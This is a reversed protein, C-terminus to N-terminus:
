ESEMLRRLQSVPIKFREIRRPGALTGAPDQCRIVVTPQEACRLVVYLWYDNGRQQAQAWEHQEFVVPKIGAAFGKVEILRQDTTGPRRALLDYGLGATQRDDVSWGLGELETVVKAIAVKESDPDHGLEDTRAGGSVQIWGMLTPATHSVDDFLDLQALRDARLAAFRDLAERRASPDLVRVQRKYRREIDGLDARTKATIARQQREMQAAEAAVADRAADDAEVRAAPVPAAPPTTARSLNMVSEWATPFAGAGSYRILFPVTRRVRRIGDHHELDATYVFLRYGTLSALDVAAAGALLDGECRRVAREVLELFPDETPGLVVVDAARRFQEEQAKAVAGADAAILCEEGGGFSSPLPGSDSRLIRIGPTPGTSVNWDEVQAAQDVFASVIVPNIAQLRDAALRQMAEAPDVPTKLRDEDAVIEQARAVLTETDPVAAIVAGVASPDRYTAAMAAGFNFGARDVTADLLDYLRGDLAQSAATLNDLMVQQVRGERTGAAILHYVFVEHQQGIRHLRGARQELRVLSWPIDWDIMVHASQLDIGEGGADTSVLVQFRDNLFRLQLEERGTQDVTGDLVETSFGASRFVDALWRATDTFETFVLLQGAGPSIGHHTMIARATQWKAAADKSTLARELQGIVATVAELEARRDSSRAQLVAEEADHWAEDSDLAARSLDASDFGEPAIPAVRGAQSGSLAARRRRLTELAATVSSAARKGYISRALVSDSSYWTDVYGMVAEYADTEAPTLFVERTEAFRPRFLPEGDLGRLDEKMRRLFNDRGPRLAHDYTKETPDWPYIAPDLLHLLARFYHEKGRHPTATLLLLHHAADGLQRAASLYQSTPTLRHAEDFVALSWSARSGVIKRRVDTNYTYLDLSVVWVDVDGRLDLPERGIEATIRHADIGFFRKLEGIWKGVLHAPVVIVTKGPVLGRRRGEALYMGTMLTKGTGPEDALLFRLKPQSLMVGFVADDQHAYPRLPRTALVTSRIRPIAWRMWQAWVATIARGSHGSGDSAPVKCGAVDGFRVFVEDLGRTPSRVICSFGAREQSVAVVTVLVGDVLLRDDKAIDM